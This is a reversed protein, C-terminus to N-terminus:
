RRKMPPTRAVSRSIMERVKEKERDTDEAYDRISHKVQIDPVVGRDPNKGPLTMIALPVTAHLKSNPLEVFIPDSCFRERCFTEQGIITGMKNFKFIAATVAAASNTYNSTLLFAKGGFRSSKEHPTRMKDEASEVYSGNKAKDLKQGAKYSYRSSRFKDSVKILFNDWVRYESDALHDLLYFGRYGSGGPNRRLDIVVYGSSRHRIFFDDIFVQYAGDNGYEFSPVDLIPIKGKDVQLFSEGYEKTSRWISDTEGQEPLIGNVETEGIKSNIRYTVLWPSELSFYTELLSGFIAEFLVFKSQSLPPNLFKFSESLISEIPINNIELIESFLPIGQGDHERVVFVKGDLLKIAFPLDLHSDPMGSPFILTHEDQMSAALEQLFYYCHFRSISDTKCAEIRGKVDKAQEVFRERSIMRYPDAHAEDILNVYFDVDSKLEDRTLYDRM